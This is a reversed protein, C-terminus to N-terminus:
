TFVASIFNQSTGFNEEWLVLFANYKPAMRQKDQLDDDFVSVMDLTGHPFRSEASLSIPFCLRLDAARYAVACSILAKTKAEYDSLVIGRSELDSIELGRAM